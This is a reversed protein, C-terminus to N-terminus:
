IIVRGVTPQPTNSQVALAVVSSFDEWTLGIEAESDSGLAAKLGELISSVMTQDKNATGTAIDEGLASKLESRLM